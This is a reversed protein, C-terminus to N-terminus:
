LLRWWGRVGDREEPLGVDRRLHDNSPARDALRRHLRALLLTMM